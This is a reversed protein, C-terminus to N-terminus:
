LCVCVCVCVGLSDVHTLVDGAEIQACHAAAQGPKLRKVVHVGDVREKLVLGVGVKAPPPVPAQVQTVVPQPAQMLREQPHWPPPPPAAYGANPGQPISARDQAPPSPQYEHVVPYATSAELPVFQTQMSEARRRLVIEVPRDYKARKVMLTVNSGVPGLLMPRVDVPQLGRVDRGDIAVIQDMKKLRDEGFLDSPKTYAAAGGYVLRSVVLNGNVDTALVAGIGALQQPQDADTEPQLSVTSIPQRVLRVNRVASNLSHTMLSLEVVTGADGLFWQPVDEESMSATPHNNIKVIVDGKFVQGSFAAAGGPLVRACVCRNQADREIALGVGHSLGGRMSGGGAVVMAARWPRPGRRRGAAPSARGEM